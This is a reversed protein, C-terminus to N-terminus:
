NEKVRRWCYARCLLNAFREFDGAGLRGLVRLVDRKSLVAVKHMRATSAVNLGAEPWEALPLDFESERRQGTAPVAVFDADGSDLVAEPLRM